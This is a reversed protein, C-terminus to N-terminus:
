YQPVAAPSRSRDGHRGRIASERERTCGAAAHETERSRRWLAGHETEWSLVVRKQTGSSGLARVRRDLASLFNSCMPKVVGPALHSKLRRFRHFWTRVYQSWPQDVVGEDDFPAEIDLEGVFVEVCLTAHPRDM